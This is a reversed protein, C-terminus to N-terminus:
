LLSVTNLIGCVQNILKQQHKYECIHPLNQANEFADFLRHWMKSYNNGYLDRRNYMLSSCAVHRVKFNCCNVILTSLTNFVNNQFHLLFSNTDCL